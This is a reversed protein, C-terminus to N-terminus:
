KIRMKMFLSFSTNGSSNGNMTGKPNIHVGTVTDDYGNADVASPSYTFSGPPAGATNSYTVDASTLPSTLGCPAGPASTCSYTITPTASACTPPTPSACVWLSMNTPVTDTIVTTNNYVEGTGSNTVTITYQVEAGPIAKADTSVGNVPDSLVQVSKMVMLSPMPLTVTFAGVGNDSVTNETGEKANIAVTWAGAPGGAPVVYPYEFTKLAAGSDGSPPGAPVTMPANNVVTVGNPDTITITASSIDFSGFPDSVVARLYATSGPSFNAPITVGPYATSYATVSDVNVVNQSPLTVSSFNTGSMPYVIVDRTGGGGTNNQVTLNWSQTAACFQAAAIPLNFTYLTAATTLAITQTDTFTTGGGSCDLSVTINRNGPGGGNRALYLDVPINFPYSPNSITTGITDSAQLFPNLAWTQLGGGKTLTATGVLGSPPVRSVKFPPTSSGDYLYLPKNGTGPISSASVTITPACPSGGTGSPNNVTACNDIATGIGTGGAITADFVVTASGNAAISINSATLMQGAFSCTAGAPCSVVSLNTLNADVTDSVSAGAVPLGGTENLTVTYRIVDGPNEDGGNQDVWSKTSTSLDPKQLNDFTGIGNDSVTNETGEKANVTATWTGIPSAPVIYPYEFTKLAAGSDGSPPGAPVAMPANNVVTVGNPDTITITASSIDFSGFPDSVVARLYATSGPAFYSPTTVGPYITSYATVSDVNIVTTAPLTVSSYTSAAPAPYVLVSRNGGGSENNTVSLYWTSGAPCTYTAALPLNFFFQAAPAGNALFIGPNPPSLSEAVAVTVGPTPAVTDCYLRVHINYVRTNLSSLWLEVPINASLAPDITVDKQLVPSIAWTQTALEGITVSTGFVSMPTRSLNLADDLYLPKNGTGPISSASVTITPACPSGGTGSPNNVTACNDIATGIGTGGAITADFVVTASGNAAISINSATLMQGAFSCTAGAPCSVVSLNTLNADVTDSVSAGAVPLGGTENLTVTYRIVDGPNEDGGNLDLWSKTSTSLDSAVVTDTDTATNNNWNGEGIGAAINATVSNTVSSSAGTVDTNVTLTIQGTNPFTAITLGAGELAALTLPTPCVAGNIATCSLGTKTLGTVAGDFVVTNNAADPGNNTVVITYTTSTGGTVSAVGDTKTVAVDAIAASVNMSAPQSNAQMTTNYYVRSNNSYFAPPVSAGITANYTITFSAGPALTGPFAWKVEQMNAANADASYPTQTPPIVGTTTAAGPTSGGYVSSNTIIAGAANSTSFSFRTASNLTAGGTPLWDYVSIGIANATGTNTVTLTYSVTNGVKAGTISATKTITLAPTTQVSTQVESSVPGVGTGSLSATNYVTDGTAANTQVDLLIQGTQGANITASPFSFTQRTGTGCNGAALVPPNPSPMGIPGSVININSVPNAATQCPLLDALVAGSVSTAGTNAFDIRYRIRANAPIFSSYATWTAGGDSSYQSISKTVSLASTVTVGATNTTDARSVTGGTFTVAATNYYPTPTSPVNTGVTATYTITFSSGPALTQAGFNWLVEQQNASNVGTDYPTLTPPVSTTPVVSTLGSISSTSAYSFRTTANAVSDSTPLVDYVNINGANGTGINSVTITYTATGGAAVNPTSTTKSIQLNPAAQVYSNMNSTVGPSIASSSLTATNPVISNLAANTQVDYQISGGAGPGLTAVTPTFSFTQRTGAGCTAGNTGAATAPNPMGVGIPGSVVVINSVSNAPTQCPLTDTLTVNSQDSNGSNIYTIQYRVKANAPIYSGDSPDCVAGAYVCVVTKRVFLNSNNDAVSPVMYDWMNEIGNDAGGADGGFVESGNIFGGSPVPATLRMSIKVYRMTGVDIEGTAWRVANTGAPLPNSPSLNWGTSTYAGGVCTTCNGTNTAPGISADGIRSGPYAIRQWPGVTGTNDFQYGTQPGAVPSGAYFPPAGRGSSIITQSSRPAAPLATSGFANTQDADWLNHSTNNTEGLLSMLTAIGTGDPNVNYGNGGQSIRTPFPPYQATRSNTSFFIGTDAHLETLRGNCNNGTYGAAACLGTPDYTTGSNFPAAYTRQGFLNGWGTDIGGPLSPTIPNYNGDVIWAGVVEAGSPVYDTIYGAVGVTAGNSVPTYQIIYSVTDGVQFGPHGAAARDVLMQVTEPAFYKTTQVQGVSHASATQPLCFACALLILALFGSRNKPRFRMM